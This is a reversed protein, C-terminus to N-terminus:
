KKKDGKKVVKVSAKSKPEEEDATVVPEQPEDEKQIEVSAKSRVSRVANPEGTSVLTDALGFRKAVRDDLEFGKVAIQRAYQEPDDTVKGDKDVYVDRDSIMFVGRTLM